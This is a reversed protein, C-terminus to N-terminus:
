PGNGTRRFAVSRVAGEHGTLTQLPKATETDWLRVTRDDSGSIIRKGDARSHSPRSRPRTGRTSGCRSAPTWTGCGCCATPRSSRRRGDPSVAIASVYKMPGRWRRIERGTDLDWLIVLRRARRDGSPQGPRVGVATVLGTHGDLKQIQRGTEVDWLRATGDMGGSLALKGDASPGGGLGVGHPRRVAEPRAPRRGRLAARQPRRQRHRGAPRRGHVGDPEGARGVVELPDLEGTNDPLSAGIQSRRFCRASGCSASWTASRRCGCRGPWRAARAGAALRAAPEPGGVRRRAEPVRGVAARGRRRRQRRRHRGRVAADHHMIPKTGRRGPHRDARPGDAFKKADEEM